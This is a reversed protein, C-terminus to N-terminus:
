PAPGGLRALTRELDPVLRELNAVAGPDLPAFGHLPVPAGAPRARIADVATPTGTSELLRALAELADALAQRPNAATATM